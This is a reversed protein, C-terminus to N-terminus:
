LQDTFSKHTSSIKETFTNLTKFSGHFRTDSKNLSKRLHILRHILKFLHFPKLANAVKVADYACDAYKATQIYQENNFLKKIDDNMIKKSTFNNDMDRIVVNLGNWWGEKASVLQNQTMNAPHSCTYKEIILKFEPNIDLFDQNAQRVHRYNADDILIICNESMYKKALLLCMLQTRYDDAADIFLLGIKKNKLSSDLHNLANEFDENILKVNTIDLDKIRKEIINKNQFHPDFQSFNDIGVAEGKFVKAVSLLSLGQYVGIELYIEDTYNICTSLQQLLAIIKKGSYGTLNKDKFSLELNESNGIIKKISLIM